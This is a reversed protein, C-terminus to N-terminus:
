ISKEVELVNRIFVSVWFICFQGSFRHDIEHKKLREGSFFGGLSSCINKGIKSFERRLAALAQPKGICLGGAM